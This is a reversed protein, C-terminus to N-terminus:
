PKLKKYQAGIRYSWAISSRTSRVFSASAVESVDRASDCTAAPWPISREMPTSEDTHVPGDCTVSRKLAAELHLRSKENRAVVVVVLV